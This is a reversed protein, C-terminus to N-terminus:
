FNNTRTIKFLGDVHRMVIEQNIRILTVFIIIIVKGFIISAIM